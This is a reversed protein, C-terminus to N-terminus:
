NLDVILRVANFSRRAVTRTSCNFARRRNNEKGGLGKWGRKRNEWNGAFPRNVRRVIWVIRIHAVVTHMVIRCRCGLRGEEERVRAREFGKERAADTTGGNVRWTQVPIRSMPTKRRKTFYIVNRLSRRLSRSRVRRASVATNRKNTERARACKSFEKVVTALTHRALKLLRSRSCFERERKIKKGKRRPAVFALAGHTPGSSVLGVPQVTSQLHRLIYRSLVYHAARRITLSLPWSRRDLDSM